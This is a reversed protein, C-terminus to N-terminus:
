WKYLKGTKKSVLAYKDKNRNKMDEITVCLYTDRDSNRGMRWLIIYKLVGDKEIYTPQGYKTYRLAVHRASDASPVNDKLLYRVKGDNQWVTYTM